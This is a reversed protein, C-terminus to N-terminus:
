GNNIIMQIIRAATLIGIVNVIVILIIAPRFVDVAVIFGHVELSLYLLSLGAV